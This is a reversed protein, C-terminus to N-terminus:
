SNEGDRITINRLLVNDDSYRPEGDKSSSDLMEDVELRLRSEAMAQVRVTDDYQKSKRLDTGANNGNGLPTNIALILFDCLSELGPSRWKCCILLTTYILAVVAHISLITAAFRRAIGIMSYSYGNRLTTILFETANSMDVKDVTTVVIGNIYGFVADLEDQLSQSWPDDLAVITDADGNVRAIADALLLSLSIGIPLRVSYGVKEMNQVLQTITDNPPLAQNAWAADLQIHVDGETPWSNPPDSTNSSHIYPDLRPTLYVDTPQWSAYLSCTVVEVASIMENPVSATPNTGNYKSLFAAAVSPTNDGLNPPEIWIAALTTPPAWLDLLPAANSEWQQSTMTPFSLQLGTLNSNVWYSENAVQIFESNCNSVVQPGLPLQSSGTQFARFLTSEASSLESAYQLLIDVPVSTTQTLLCSSSTAFADGNLVEKYPCSGAIEIGALLREYGIDLFIDDDALSGGSIPLTFNWRPVIEPLEPEWLVFNQGLIAPLGGAPCHVPISANIFRCNDPLFNELTINTPWIMTENTSIFFRSNAVNLPVKPFLSSGFVDSSLKYPTYWWGLVPLMLIASSPGSVAVLIASLSILFIYSLRTTRFGKTFSKNCLGSTFISTLQSSQFGALVGGLSLGAGQVLVYQVYAIAVTSLSAAILIEHLKAAFQLGNFKISQGSDRLDEYYIQSFNIALLTASIALAPLHIWCRGIALAKSIDHHFIKSTWSRSRLNQSQSPDRSWLGKNSPPHDSSPTRQGDIVSYSLTEHSKSSNSLAMISSM